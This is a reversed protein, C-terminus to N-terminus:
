GAQPQELMQQLAAQDPGSWPRAGPVRALYSTLDTVLGRAPPLHSSLVLDPELQMVSALSRAFRSRDVQHLWPADITSWLVLGEELERAGIAQADDVPAQLLAGFSDASFLANSRRDYVGVTEPADFSPPTMAVLDRDGVHVVDGPNAFYWRDMPVPNIMNMKGMALYTTVVRLHPAADLLWALNGVHDPDTHTLWLWRLEGPDIVSALAAPFDDQSGGPGADILVPEAARIVFANAAIVGMGPVPLYTPIVDIDPAVRAPTFVTPATIPGTSGDARAPTSTTPSM